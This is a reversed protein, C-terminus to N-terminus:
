QQQDSPLPPGPYELQWLQKHPPKGPLSLLSSAKEKKVVKEQQEAETAIIRFLNTLAVYSTNRRREQGKRTEQTFYM